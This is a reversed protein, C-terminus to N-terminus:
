AITADDLIGTASKLDIGRRSLKWTYISDRQIASSAVYSAVCAVMLPVLLQYSRTMEAILLICTLPARSAGAFLAAMGVVAFAMPPTLMGPVAVQFLLGFAGGGMAGVFLSPALVGGSGGSGLTTSTALMKFIMLLLLPFLLLGGNLAIETVPYGVRAVLPVFVIIIGVLLGGIGPRYKDPLPLRHFFGDITSLSHIWVVSLLGLLAGLLIFLVLEPGLPVEYTPISFRPNTGLFLAATATGVLAALLAPVIAIAEIGIMVIELGFLTGGIPANFMAAIGASVGAATLLRLESVRLHFLQGIKSGIGAGIQAIPGETGASGGSGITISSAIAKALPVRGPIRSQNVAIAALVEPVGEGKAESGARALFLGVILGGVAPMALLGLPLWFGPVYIGIGALFDFTLSALDVLLRYGVAGLGAISGVLIAVLDLKVFRKLLSEQVSEERPAGDEDSPESTTHRVRV